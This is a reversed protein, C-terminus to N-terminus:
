RKLTIRRTAKITSRGCVATVNLTVKTSAKRALRQALSKSIRLILPRPLRGSTTLRTGLLRTTVTVKCGRPEVADLFIARTRPTIKLTTKGLFTFTPCGVPQEGKTDPCRDVDNRVGDRDRDLDTIVGTTTAVAYTTTDSPGVDHELYACMRYPGAKPASTQSTVTFAGSAHITIQGTRALPRMAQQAVTPACDTGGPETFVRLKARDTSHGRLTYTLPGGATAPPVEVTVDDGRDAEGVAADGEALARPPATKADVSDIVYACLRYHGPNGASFNSTHQVTEGPTAVGTDAQTAGPRGEMEAVTPACNAARREAFTFTIGQTDATVTTTVPVQAPVNGLPTAPASVAIQDAAQAAGPAGMTILAAGFAVLTKAQM